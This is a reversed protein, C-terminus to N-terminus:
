MGLQTLTDLAVRFLIDLDLDEVPIEPGIGVLALAPDPRIAGVSRFSPWASSRPSGAMRKRMEISAQSLWAEVTARNLELQVGSRELRAGSRIKRTLQSLCVSSISYRTSRGLPFSVSLPAALM